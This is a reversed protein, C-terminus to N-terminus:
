VLAPFLLLPLASLGLPLLAKGGQNLILSRVAEVGLLLCVSAVMGLCLTFRRGIARRADALLAVVRAEPGTARTADLFAHLAATLGAACALV